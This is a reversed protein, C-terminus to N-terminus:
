DSIPQSQWGRLIIEARDLFAPLAKAVTSTLTVGLSLDAPQMGLLSIRNPLKGRIQALGLVETFTVQHQSLKMGGYRPIADDQLEIISAPALGADVADLILLGRTEEVIPLLDLGLTGGDLFDVEPMTEQLRSALARLAHVGVGEDTCLLNGIGLVTITHTTNMFALKTQEILL